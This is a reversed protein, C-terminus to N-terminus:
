DHFACLEIEEVGPMILRKLRPCEQFTNREIRKVTNHCFEIINPHCRFADRRIVSLSQFISLHTVNSLIIPWLDGYIHDVEEDEPLEEGTYIGRVIERETAM